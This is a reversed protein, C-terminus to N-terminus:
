QWSGAQLEPDGIAGDQSGDLSSFAKDVPGADIVISASHCVCAGEQLAVIVANDQAVAPGSAVLMSLAFWLMSKTM